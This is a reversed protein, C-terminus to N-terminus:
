VIYRMFKCYATTTTKTMPTYTPTQAAFAGQSMGGLGVLSMLSLTLVTKTLNKM